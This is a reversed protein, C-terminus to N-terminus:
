EQAPVPLQDAETQDDRYQQAGGGEVADVPVVPLTHGLHEADVQVLNFAGASGFTFGIALGLRFSGAHFRFPYGTDGGFLLFYGIGCSLLVVLTNSAQASSM